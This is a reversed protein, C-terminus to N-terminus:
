ALGDTSYEYTEYPWRQVIDAQERTLTIQVPESSM